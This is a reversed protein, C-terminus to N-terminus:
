DYVEGKDVRESFETEGGAALLKAQAVWEDRSARGNFGELHSDVWALEADTWAAIQDFHWFGLSQLMAELKPGVGRIKKLDDGRNERPGDLGSPRVAEITSAPDADMARVPEASPTEMGRAAEGAERAADRVRANVGGDEAVPDPAVASAVSERAERVKESASEGADKVADTVNDLASGAKDGAGSLKGSIRDAVAGFRESIAAAAGGAAASVRDVAESVESSSGREYRSTSASGSGAPAQHAGGGPARYLGGAPAVPAVQTNPPPLKRASVLSLLSGGIVAIVAGVMFGANWGNGMLNGYAFGIGAGFAAAMVFSMAVYFLGDSIYSTREAM